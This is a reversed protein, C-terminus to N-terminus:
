ISILQVVHELITKSNVMISKIKMAFVIYFAVVYM